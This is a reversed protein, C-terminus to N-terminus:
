RLGLTGGIVWLRYRILSMIVIEELLDWELALLFFDRLFEESVGNIYSNHLVYEILDATGYRRKSNIKTLVEM